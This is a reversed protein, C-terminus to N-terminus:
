AYLLALLVSVSAGVVSEVTSNRLLTKILFKAEQDNSEAVKEILQQLRVNAVQKNHNGIRVKDGFPSGNNTTSANNSEAHEQATMNEINLSLLYPHRTGTDFTSVMLFSVNMVKLLIERTGSKQAIVDGVGVDPAVSYPVELKNRVANRKGKLKLGAIIFTDPYAMKNVFM